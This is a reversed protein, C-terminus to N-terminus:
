AADKPTLLRELDDRRYRVIGGIRVPVLVGSQEWRYITSRAVRLLDMTQRVTLLEMPVDHALGTM